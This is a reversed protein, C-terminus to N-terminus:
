AVREFQGLLKLASTWFSANSIAKDLSAAERQSEELERLVYECM